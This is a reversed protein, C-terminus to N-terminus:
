LHGGKKLEDYKKVLFKWADGMERFQWQWWALRYLFDLRESESPNPNRHYLWHAAGGDCEVPIGLVCAEVAANSHRTIMLSAGSLAKKLTVWESRDEWDVTDLREGSKTKSRPKPRYVIRRGPFRKAAKQLADIEWSHEGMYDHFKPGMGLVLVHGDPDYSSGPGDIEFCLKEWRSPNPDTLDMAAHTPHDTNISVRVYCDALNKSKGLYGMDWLAVPRGSEIHKNRAANYLPHGVGSMSLWLCEGGYQPTIKPRLGARWSGDASPVVMSRGTRSGGQDHRFFEVREIPM